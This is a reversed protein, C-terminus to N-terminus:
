IKRKNSFLFFSRVQDLTGIFPLGLENDVDIHTVIHCNSYLAIDELLNGPVYSWALIWHPRHNVHRETFNYLRILSLVDSPIDWQTCVIVRPGVSSLWTILQRARSLDAEVAVCEKVRTKTRTGHLSASIVIVRPEHILTDAPLAVTPPQNIFLGAVVASDRTSKAVGEVFRVRDMFPLHAKHVKRFTNLALNQIWDEIQCRDSSNCTWSLAATLLSHQGIPSKCDWKIALNPLLKQVIQNALHFGAIIDTVHRTRQDDLVHDLLAAILLRVECETVHDSPFLQQLYDPWTGHLASLSLQGQHTVQLTTSDVHSSGLGPAARSCSRSM